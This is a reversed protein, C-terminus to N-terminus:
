LFNYTIPKQPLIVAIHYLGDSGSLLFINLIKRTLIGYGTDPYNELKINVNQGIKIKIIHNCDRGLRKQNPKFTVIKSSNGNM